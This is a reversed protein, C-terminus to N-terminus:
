FRLGAGVRATVTEAKIGLAKAFSIYEFDGRVFLNPMLMVDLGGGASWGYIFHANKAESTSFDFPTVTPTCPDPSCPVTETGSVRASRTIDARGVAVGVTAYPLFNGVIWGGRLRAAGYDTIRMSASGDITVAYSNGGATVSRSIPSVPAVSFFDSRNYHLDIGVIVDSWQSNYGAFIGFSTGSPSVKGLVGWESPRQENELATARLLYAILDETAGAFNMESSTYGLQGGAYFGAWRTYRPAEPIFPSSGRLTPMDFDQAHACTVSALLCGAVVFWRM